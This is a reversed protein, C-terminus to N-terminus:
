MLDFSQLFVIAYFYIIKIKIGIKILAAAILYKKYIQVTTIIMFKMFLMSFMFFFLSKRFPLGTHYQM